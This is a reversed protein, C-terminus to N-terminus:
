KLTEKKRAIEKILKKDFTFIEYGLTSYSVLLCDVFDLTTKAFVELGFRLMTMDSCAVNRKKLFKMVLATIESRPVNYSRSLVYVIEAIVETTVFCINKSLVLKVELAMQENDQLIYRLVANTDLLVM